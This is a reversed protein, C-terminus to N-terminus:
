LKKTKKFGINDRNRIKMIYDYLFVGITAGIPASPNTWFNPENIINGVINIVLWISWAVCILLIQKKLKSNIRKM